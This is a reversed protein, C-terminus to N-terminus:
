RLRERLQKRVKELMHAMLDDVSAAQIFKKLGMTAIIEGVEVPALYKKLGVAKTLPNLDLDGKRKSRAM